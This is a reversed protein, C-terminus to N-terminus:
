ESTCRNSGGLFTLNLSSLPETTSALASFLGLIDWDTEFVLRFSCCNFFPRTMGISSFQEVGRVPIGGVKDRGFNESVREIPNFSAEEMCTWDGVVGFQLEPKDKLSSSASSANQSSHHFVRPLTTQKDSARHMELSLYEAYVM